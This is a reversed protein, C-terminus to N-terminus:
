CISHFTPRVSITVKNNQIDKIKKNLKAVGEKLEKSNEKSAEYEKQLEEV